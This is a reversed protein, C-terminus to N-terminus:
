RHEWWWLALAVLAAGGAGAASHPATILMIRVAHGLRRSARRWRERRDRRWRCHHCRCGKSGSM